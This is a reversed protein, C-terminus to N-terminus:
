QGNSEKEKKGKQSNGFFGFSPPRNRFCTCTMFIDQTQKRNLCDVFTVTIDLFTACGLNNLYLNRFSSDFVVEYDMDREEKPPLLYGTDEPYTMSIEAKPVFGASEFHLAKVALPFNTTNVIKFSFNLRIHSRGEELEPEVKWKKTTIWQHFTAEQLRIQKELLNAQQRATKTQRIVYVVAAISVLAYVCTSIAEVWQPTFWTNM